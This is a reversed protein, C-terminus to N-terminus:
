VVNVPQYEGFVRRMADSIEGLTAWNRVADVITPMLNSGDRAAAEVRELAAGAAASNREARLRGLRECQKHEIEPNVRLLDIPPQESTTFQNLGVITRQRSEIERQYLYAASQIERQM